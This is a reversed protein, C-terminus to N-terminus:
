IGTERRWRVMLVWVLLVCLCSWLCSSKRMTKSIMNRKFKEIHEWNGLWKILAICVVWLTFLPSSFLLRPYIFHPLFFSNNQLLHGLEEKPFFETQFFLKTVERYTHVPFGLPCFWFEGTCDFLPWFHKVHHLLTLESAQTHAPPFDSLAELTLPLPSAPFEPLALLTCQAEWFTM